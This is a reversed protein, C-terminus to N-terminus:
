VAKLAAILEQRVQDLRKYRAVEDPMTSLEQALTEALDKDAAVETWPTHTVRIGFVLTEIDPLRALLQEERRLWANAPILPSTLYPLQRDPHHNLEAAAVVGWNWRTVPRDVSLYDALRDIASGLTDNLGPPPAHAQQLPKGLKDGLRWRTPFCVCGAVTLFSPADDARHLLLVDAATALGISLLTSEVDASPHVDVGWGRLATAAAEVCPGATPTWQLYRHHDGGLWVAREALALEDGARQGFFTVPNGPRVGLSYRFSTGAMHHVLTGSVTAVGM